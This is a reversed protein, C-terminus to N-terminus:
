LGVPRSPTALLTFDQDAAVVKWGVARAWKAERTTKAKGIRGVLLVQYEGDALRELFQDRSARVLLHDRREGVYEVSNRLRPGFALYPSSHPSRGTSGALAVRIGDGSQAAIWDFPEGAGQYRVADFETQIKRGVLAGAIALLVVAVALM